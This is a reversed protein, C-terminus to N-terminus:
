QNVTFTGQAPDDLHDHFHYTGTKNLAVTLSQGKQLVREVVGDYAQHSEHEGFAVLRIQDDANTITLTDCLKANLHHPTAANDHMEVLHNQGKTKCTAESAASPKALYHNAFAHVGFAVASVTLILAVIISFTQLWKM